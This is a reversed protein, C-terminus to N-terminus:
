PRLAVVTVGGPEIDSACLSPTLPRVFLTAWSQIIAADVPARDRIVTPIIIADAACTALKM